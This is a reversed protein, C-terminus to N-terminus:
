GHGAGGARDRLRRLLALVNDREIAGRAAEDFGDHHIPGDITLHTHHVDIRRPATV